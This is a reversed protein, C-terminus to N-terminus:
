PGSLAGPGTRELVIVKPTKLMWRHTGQAVLRQCLSLWSPDILGPMGSRDAPQAAVVLFRRQPNQQWYEPWARDTQQPIFATLSLAFDNVQVRDGPHMRARLIPVAERVDGAIQQSLGRGAGAIGSALVIGAVSAAVWSLRGCFQGAVVLGVPFILPLFTRAGYLADFSGVSRLAVMGAGYALAVAACPRVWSQRPRVIAWACLLGCGVSLACGVSEGLWGSHIRDRLGGLMLTSPLSWGLDALHGPWAHWGLSERAGRDAGSLHGTALRNWVLLGAAIFAALAIAVTAHLLKGAARLARMDGLLWAGLVGFAVVGAYRLGLALLACAAAVWIAAPKPWAALAAALGLLAAAFPLETAAGFIQVGLIPTAALACALFWPMWGAAIRTLVALAVLSVLALAPYAALGMRGLLGGLLPYGCPWHNGFARPWEKAYLKALECYYYSDFGLRPGSRYLCLAFVVGAM